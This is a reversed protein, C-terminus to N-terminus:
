TLSCHSCFAAATNSSFPWATHPGKEGNSKRPARSGIELNVGLVPTEMHVDPQEFENTGFTDGGRGTELDAEAGLVWMQTGLVGDVCGWVSFRPNMRFM